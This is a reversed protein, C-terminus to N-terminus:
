FVGFRLTKNIVSSDPTDCTENWMKIASPELNTNGLSSGIAQSEGFFLILIKNKGINVQGVNASECNALTEFLIGPQPRHREDEHGPPQDAFVM